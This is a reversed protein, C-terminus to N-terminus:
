TPKNFGIGFGAERCANVVSMLASYTLEGGGEIMVVMQEKSLGQQRDKLMKVLQKLDADPVTIGEPKDLTKLSLAGVGGQAESITVTMKAADEITPDVTAPTSSSKVDKLAPLNMAIQGELPAPRFTLIFLSLLQFTMDLMPAIPLTIEQPPEHKKKHKSV